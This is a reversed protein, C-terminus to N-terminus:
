AQADARELLDGYGENKPLQSVVDQVLGPEAAETVVSMVAKSANEPDDAVETEVAREAVRRTFEEFDFQEGHDGESVIRGAEEPLQAAVDEAEGATIREGFTQLVARIATETEGGSALDARQQVHGSFEDYDM